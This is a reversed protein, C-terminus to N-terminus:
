RPASLGVGAARNINRQDAMSVVNGDVDAMLGALDLDDDNVSVSDVAWALNTPSGM